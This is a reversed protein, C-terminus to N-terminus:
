WRRSRRIVMGPSRVQAQGSTEPTNAPAESPSSPLSEIRFRVSGDPALEPSVVDYDHPIRIPAYVHANNKIRRLVTEHIKPKEM